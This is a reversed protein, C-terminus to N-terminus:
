LPRPLEQSPLRQRRRVDGTSKTLPVTAIFLLPRTLIVIADTNPSYPLATAPCPPATLLPLPANSIVEVAKADEDSASSHADEFAVQKDQGGM